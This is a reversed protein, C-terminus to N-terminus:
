SLQTLACLWDKQVVKDPIEVVQQYARSVRGDVEGADSSGQLVGSASLQHRGRLTPAGAYLHPERPQGGAVTATFPLCSRSEVQPVERDGRDRNLQISIILSMRQRLQRNILRRHRASASARVCPGKAIEVRTAPRERPHEDPPYARPGSRMLSSSRWM